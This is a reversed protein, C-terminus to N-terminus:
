TSVSAWTGTDEFGKEGSFLSATGWQSFGRPESFGSLAFLFTWSEMELSIIPGLSGKMRGKNQRRKVCMQIEFSILAVQLPHVESMSSM